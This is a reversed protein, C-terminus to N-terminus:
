QEYIKTHTRSSRNCGPGNAHSDLYTENYKSKFTIQKRCICIVAISGEIVRSVNPHKQFRELIYKTM